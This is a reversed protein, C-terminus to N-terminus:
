RYKISNAAVSVSVASLGWTNCACGIDINGEPFRCVARVTLVYPTSTSYTSVGYIIGETTRCLYIQSSRPNAAFTVVIEHANKIYSNNTVVSVMETDSITKASVASHTLTTWGKNAKENYIIDWYAHYM